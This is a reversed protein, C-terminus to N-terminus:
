FYISLLRFDDAYYSDILNKTEDSFDAPTFRKYCPAANVPTRDMRVSYGYEDLLQNVDNVLHSFRLIHPIIQNGEEDHTYMSQPIFHQHKHQNAFGIGRQIFKNFDDVTGRGTRIGKVNCYYESVMRDYPHRVVTFLTYMNKIVHFSEIERPPRHFGGNSTFWKDNIGWCLRKDIAAIALGGTKSIHVFKLPHMNNEPPQINKELTQMNKESPQINKELTQMNKELTQMNKEPPQINKVLTQMNKESPQINKELTQMNKEPPQINKVLTQMTKESPQINKELTQINKEQIDMILHIRYVDHSNNVVGHIKTNDLEYLTGVKLHINEPLFRIDPSTTIPLHIRHCIRLLRDSDVHQPISEGPPLRALMAKYIFPDQIRPYWYKLQAFIRDLHSGIKEINEKYITRGRSDQWIFPITNTKRHVKFTEQRHRFQNWDTENFNNQIQTRLEGVDYVGVITTTM